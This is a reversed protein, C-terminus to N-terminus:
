EIIFEQSLTGVRNCEAEVTLVMGAQAGHLRYLLTVSGTDDQRSLEQVVLERGGEYVRITRVHHNTPNGVQHTVVLTLVLEESDFSIELDSPAHGQILALSLIIGLLLFMKKM